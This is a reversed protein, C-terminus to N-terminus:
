EDHQFLVGQRRGDEYRMDAYAVARREAQELMAGLDSIDAASVHMMGNLKRQMRIVWTNLPDFALAPAPPHRKEVPLAAPKDGVTRPKKRTVM